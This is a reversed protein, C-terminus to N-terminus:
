RALAPKLQSLYREALLERHHIEHGAAIWALARVSVPHTSAVGVNTWAEPPLGALLAVTARRVATFEALLSALPRDRFRAPPVYANEDFSALPTADGRAIRMARYAFVREADAMHGIVEKVTWKGPAYAFNAQEDTLERLPILTDEIQTALIAIIDGAPVRAIYGHYYEFYEGTLPPQDFSM